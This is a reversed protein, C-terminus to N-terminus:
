EEPRSFRRLSETSPVFYYAGSLPKSYSTLADRTGTALGAMSELMASLRRQEASFGVFMTGHETVTGYPM